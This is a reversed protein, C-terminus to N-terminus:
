SASSTAPPHRKQALTQRAEFLAVAVDPEYFGLCMQQLVALGDGITGHAEEVTLCGSENVAVTLDELVDKAASAARKMSRLREYKENLARIQAKLLQQNTRIADKFCDIGNALLEYADSELMQACAKPDTLRRVAVDETAVINGVARLLRRRVMPDASSPSVEFDMYKLFLRLLEVVSDASWVDYERWDTPAAGDPIEARADTM